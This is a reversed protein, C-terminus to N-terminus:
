KEKTWLKVTCCPPRNSSRKNHHTPAAKHRTRRPPTEPSVRTRSPQRQHYAITARRHQRRSTGRQKEQWELSLLNLASCVQEMTVEPNKGGCGSRTAAVFTLMLLCLTQHRMLGTYNRGEYHTFGLESKGVRFTHEINWGYHGGLSHPPTARSVTLRAVLCDVAGTPTQAQDIRGAPRKNAWTRPLRHLERLRRLEAADAWIVHHGEADRRM